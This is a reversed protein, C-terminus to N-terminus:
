GEQLTIAPREVRVVEFLDGEKFRPAQALFEPLNFSELLEDKVPLRVAPSARGEEDIHTLYVRAYIGDDRKSAFALWRGNSSWSHWSDMANDSNCELRHAPGKLDGSLLYIDSSSEVLSGQDAMCFSMWRGDPSFRAYYNSRGNHSAGEVALPAGGKGDNYDVVYIDFRMVRASVGARVRSFVISRDDPTWAPYIEIYDPFSAGPLLVVSDRSLDYVAIDSSTYELEQTEHIVPTSSAFSQNASVALKDGTSSWAMFTFGRHPFPFVVKQGEGSVMDLIGMGGPRGRGAMFRMKISMMGETGTKSSFTHCSFCYRERARLFPRVDFSRVDRIFTDPTKQAQFQPSVLRYVIFDDVPDESIRFHVVPSARIVGPARKYESIRRVGKVQIWADSAVARERIDKWVGQPFWWRREETIFSWRFSTGSVGVTVQWLDDVADDWEVSPECFNPPFVAGDPPYSIRLLRFPVRERYVSRWRLRDEEPTAGTVANVRMERVMAEFQEPTAGDVWRLELSKLKAPFPIEAELPLYRGIGRLYARLDYVCRPWFRQEREEVVEYPGVFLAWLRGEKLRHVY